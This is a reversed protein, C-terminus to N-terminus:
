EAPHELAVARANVRARLDDLLRSADVRAPLGETRQSFALGLLVNHIERALALPITITEESDM